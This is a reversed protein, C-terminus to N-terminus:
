LPSVCLRRSEELVQDLKRGSIGVQDLAKKNEEVTKCLVVGGAILMDKEQKTLTTLATIPHIRAEEILDQLNGHRPYSWSVMKMNVCTGYEIASKTFKTNTILWGEDIPRDNHNKRYKQLDEVRAQVYLAVKLDSRMGPENHFKVEGVIVKEKSYAYLDTEHYVCAGPLMVGTEVTYGKAKFIEGVFDELPFGSPGLSQVARRLSYRAAIPRELKHLENFALKFIENTHIGPKLKSEVISLITAITKKDAGSRLLSAILKGPEFPEQEGSAKTILIM